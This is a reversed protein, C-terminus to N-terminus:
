RLARVSFVGFGECGLGLNMEDFICGFATNIIQAGVHCDRYDGKIFGAAMGNNGSTAGIKDNKSRARFKLGQVRFVLGQM